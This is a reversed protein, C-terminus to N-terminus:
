AGAVIADRTHRYQGSRSRTAADTCSPRTAAVHHPHQLVAAVRGLEAVGQGMEPPDEHRLCSYIM